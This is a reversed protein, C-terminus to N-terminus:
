DILNSSECQVLKDAQYKYLEAFRHKNRLLEAQTGDEIVKGKELVIIRDALYTNTLRHSTFITMKRDTLEKLKEFVEHEAKPDLNSSPEDLILATNRRYLSRALALKQHQGISLEVGDESFFRTINTDLGNTCKKLIDSGGVADIAYKSAGEIESDGIRDDTYTFNDRLSFRLNRMEQFYVSFNARLSELTYEKINTGNVYIVGADPEYLRLLLRIFTSKGAGNLGVIAIKERKKFSISLEDLAKNKAGPYAFSVNSFEISNISDLVLKGDDAVTNKFDGISKFNDLQMRNDYIQMASMSFMSIAGWLQATLGIFLSYDGVTANGDLVRFAIDISIGVIVIEPLCELMSVFATRKRSAKRRTDFLGKWIRKYRGMLKDTVNFLRFEQSFARESSIGQVYGMQRMGNIQELSLFYLTKTFSAVVISAPISAILLTIGYTLSMQSLVVFAVAFSLTSSIVSITNWVVNNIAHSDRNTSNLKDYYEPNDFYELDAKLAHKMIITAIKANMMDNHMMRCYQTINKLLRQIIAILCLSGLLILLTNESSTTNEAQGALVNIVLRGIFAVIIMMIPTLIETFVRLFTYVKSTQWSLNLCWKLTKFFDPLEKLITRTEGTKRDSM